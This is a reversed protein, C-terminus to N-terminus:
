QDRDLMAPTVTRGGALLRQLVVAIIALDNKDLLYVRDGARVSALGIDPHYEVIDDVVPLRGPHGRGRVVSVAATSLARYRVM